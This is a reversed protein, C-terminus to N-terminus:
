SQKTDADIKAKTIDADLESERRATINDQRKFYSSTGGAYALYTLFIEFALKDRMAMVVVVVSGCLMGIMSMLRANLYGHEKSTWENWLKALGAKM